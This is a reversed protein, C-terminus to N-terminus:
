IIQGCIIKRFGIIIEFSRRNKMEASTESCTPQAVLTSPNGWFLLFRNCKVEHTASGYEFSNQFKNEQKISM